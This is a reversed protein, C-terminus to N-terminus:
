VVIKELYNAVGDETNKETIVDALELVERKANAVAVGIGAQELLTSDNYNDGFAICHEMEIEPYKITLLHELAAAKDQDIPSVEIYTDKSRYAHMEEAHEARLKQYLIEIEAAEGMCMIKHAGLGRKKWDALTLSLDQVLPRVRTNNEERKAWYDYAPVVWEDKHYLSLHISTGEVYGVLKEMQQLSLEQSLLTENGDLILSGNYAILPHTEIKLESQLLRLSKPMRSSILVVPFREKLVQFVAITKEALQRDKNLLTGDIDSCILRIDPKTMGFLTSGHKPM